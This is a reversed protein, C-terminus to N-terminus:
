ATAQSLTREILEEGTEGSIVLPVVAALQTEIKLGKTQYDFERKEVLSAASKEEAAAIALIKAAEKEAGKVIADGKM